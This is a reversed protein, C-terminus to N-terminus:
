PTARRKFWRVAISIWGPLGVPTEVPLSDPSDATVGSGLFAEGGLWATDADPARAARRKATKRM